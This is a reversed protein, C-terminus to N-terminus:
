RIMIVAEFRDEELFIRCSLTVYSPQIRLVLFIFNLHAQNNKNQFFDGIKM